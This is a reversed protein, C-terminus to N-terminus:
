IQLGAVANFKKFKSVRGRMSITSNQFGVGSQIKAARWWGIQRIPFENQSNEIISANLNACNRSGPGCAFKKIKKARM